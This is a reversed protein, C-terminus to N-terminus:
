TSGIRGTYRCWCPRGKGLAQVLFGSLAGCWGPLLPFRAAYQLDENKHLDSQLLRRSSRKCTGNQVQGVCACRCATCLLAGPTRVFRSDQQDGCGRQQQFRYLIMVIARFDAECGCFRRPWSYSYSSKLSLVPSSMAVCPLSIPGARACIRGRCERGARGSILVDFTLRCAVGLSQWIVMSVVRNYGLITSTVSSSYWEKKSVTSRKSPRMIRKIAPRLRGITLKSKSPELPPLKVLYRISSTISSDEMKCFVRHEDSRAM